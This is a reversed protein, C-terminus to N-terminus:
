LEVQVLTSQLELSLVSLSLRSHTPQEQRHLIGTITSGGLALVEERVEEEQQLPPLPPTVCSECLVRLSHQQSSGHEQLRGDFEEQQENEEVCVEDM